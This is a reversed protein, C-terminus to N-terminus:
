GGTMVMLLGVLGMGLLLIGPAIKQLMTPPSYEIADKYPQMAAPIQFLGPPFSKKDPLVVPELKKTKTNNFLEYYHKKLNRLYHPRAGIPIHEIEAFKLIVPVDKGEIFPNHKAYFILANERGTINGKRKGSFAFGSEGSTVSQYSLLAGSAIALAAIVGMFMNANDSMYVTGAIIGIGILVLGPILKRWSIPIVKKVKKDQSM